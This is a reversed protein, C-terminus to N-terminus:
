HPTSENTQNQVAAGRRDETGALEEGAAKGKAPLELDPTGLSRYPVAFRSQWGTSKCKKSRMVRQEHTESTATVGQDMGRYLM